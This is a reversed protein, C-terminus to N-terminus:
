GKVISTAEGNEVLGLNLHGWEGRYGKLDNENKTTNLSAHATNRHGGHPELYETHGKRILKRVDKDPVVWYQPEAPPDKLAVFVWYHDPKGCVEPQDRLHISEHPHDRLDGHKHKKKDCAPSPSCGKLSVCELKDPLTWGLRIGQSGFQWMNQGPGKTKVQIYARNEMEDDMAVIDIGPLNGAWPAAYGGRRNIEAAVYHEGARGIQSRRVQKTVPAGEGRILVVARIRFRYAVLGGLLM